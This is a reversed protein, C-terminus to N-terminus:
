GLLDTVGELKEFHENNTFFCMNHIRVSMRTDQLYGSRSEDASGIELALTSFPIDMSANGLKTGLLSM